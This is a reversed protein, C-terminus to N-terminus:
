LIGAIGVPLPVKLWIGFVAYIIIGTLVSVFLSKFIKSKELFKMWGFVMISVSFTMGVIYIGIVAAIVIGVPIMGQVEFKKESKLKKDKIMFLGIIILLIGVLVPMFGAGPKTVEWFTYKTIGLIVSVAGAAMFFLEIVFLM